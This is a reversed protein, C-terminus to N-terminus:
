DLLLDAAMRLKDAAIPKTLLCDIQLEAAREPTLQEPSITFVVVPIDYNLERVRQVLDLGSIGPMYIDTLLLDVKNRSIHLLAAEGSSLSTVTYPSDEDLTMAIIRRVHPDDDVVIINPM